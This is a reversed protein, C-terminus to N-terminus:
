PELVPHIAVGGVDSKMADHASTGTANGEISWKRTRGKRESSIKERLRRFGLIGM